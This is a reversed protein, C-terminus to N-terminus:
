LKNYVYYNTGKYIVEYTGREKGLYGSVLKNKMNSDM